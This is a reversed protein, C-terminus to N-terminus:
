VAAGKAVRGAREMCVVCLRLMAFWDQDALPVGPVLGAHVCLANHHPLALTFPLDELWAVDAADLADTWAFKPSAAPDRRREHYARLAAQEHNGRLAPLGLASGGGGYQGTLGVRDGGGRRGLAQGAAGCRALRLCGVSDPGKNVLDGLLVPQTGPPLLALLTRLEALCGHVDGILAVPGAVDLVRHWRHGPPLHRGEAARRAEDDEKPM